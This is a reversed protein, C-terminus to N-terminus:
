NLSFWVQIMGSSFSVKDRLSQEVIEKDQIIERLERGTMHLEHLQRKTEHELHQLDDCWDRYQAESAELDNITQEALRLKERTQREQGEAERVRDQLDNCFDELEIIREVVEDSTGSRQGGDLSYGRLKDALRTNESQLVQLQRELTKVKVTAPKHKFSTGLSDDEDSSSSSMGTQSFSTLHDTKEAQSLLSKNQTELMAVYDQLEQVKDLLVQKEQKEQDTRDGSRSRSKKKRESKRQSSPSKHTQTWGDKLEAKTDASEVEQQQTCNDEMGQGANTDEVKVEKVKDEVKKAAVEASETRDKEADTRGTGGQQVLPAAGAESGSGDLGKLQQKMWRIIGNSEELKEQLRAIKSQSKELQRQIQAGDTQSKKLKTETEATEVQSEKLKEQLQAIEKLLEDQTRTSQAANEQFSHALSYLVQVFL